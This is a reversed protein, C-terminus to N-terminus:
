TNIRVAQADLPPLFHLLLRCLGRHFQHQRQYAEDKGGQKNHRQSWREQHHSVSDLLEQFLSIANPIQPSLLYIHIVYSQDTNNSAYQKHDNQNTQDLATSAANALLRAGVQPSTGSRAVCPAPPKRMCDRNSQREESVWLTLAIIRGAQGPSILM